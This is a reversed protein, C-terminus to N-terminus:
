LHNVLSVLMRAIRQPADNALLLGDQALAVLEGVVVIDVPPEFVHTPVALVVAV